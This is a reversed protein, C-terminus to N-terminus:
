FFAKKALRLQNVLKNRYRKYRSFNGTSKALKYFINRTRIAQILKKSLWPCNRRRPPLVAKPICEDMIDFYKEKWNNWSQDIDKPVLVAAWDTGNILECAINWDAYKYGGYLVLPLFM